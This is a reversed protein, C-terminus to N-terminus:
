QRIARVRVIIGAKGTEEEFDIYERLEDLLYRARDDWRFWYNYHYLPVYIYEPKVTHPLRWYAALREPEDEYITSFSAYPRQLYLYMWTNTDLVMVGGDTANRIKDLDSLINAYIRGITPTTLLGKLPGAELECDLPESVHLFLKETPKYVSECAIYMGNWQLFSAACFVALLVAVARIGQASLMKAFKEPKVAPRLSVRAEWLEKLLESLQLLVPVRAVWGGLGIQTSSSLDACLSFVTATLLTWVFGRDKKESLLFPAPGFLLLPLNHFQIFQLTIEFNRGAAMRFGAHALCLAFFFLSVGLLVARVRPGRKKLFFLVACLVTSCCLGALPLVGYFSVAMRLLSPSFLNSANYEVGTFLYPLVAPLAEFSGSIYLFAVVAIFPIVCGVSIWLFTRRRLFVPTKEANLGRFRRVAFFVAAALAWLVYGFLFFPQTLVCLALALGAAVLRPARKPQEGFFTLLCFVLLAAVSVTAYSGTFFVQPVLACFMLSAALGAIGYRRLSAYLFVYFLADAAVFAYRTFLNFGETSGKLFYYLHDVPVNVLYAFQSLHWEDAIMREGLFLRHTLGHYFIEDHLGIGYRATLFFLAFLGAGFM